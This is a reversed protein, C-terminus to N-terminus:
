KVVKKKVEASGRKRERETKMFLSVSADLAPSPRYLTLGWLCSSLSSLHPPPFHSLKPQCAPDNCNKGRFQSCHQHCHCLPMTWLATHVDPFSMEQKSIITMELSAESLSNRINTLWDTNSNYPCSPSIM